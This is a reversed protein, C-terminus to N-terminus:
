KTSARRSSRAAAARAGARLPQGHDQRRKMGNVLINKGADLVLPLQSISTRASCCSKRGIARRSTSWTPGPVDLVHYHFQDGLKEGRVFPDHENMAWLARFAGYRTEASNM